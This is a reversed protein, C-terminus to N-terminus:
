MPKYPQDNKQYGSNPFVHQKFLELIVLQIDHAFCKVRLPFASQIFLEATSCDINVEDTEEMEEENNDELYQIMVEVSCVDRFANAM